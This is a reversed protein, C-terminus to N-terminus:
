CELNTLFPILFDALHTDDEERIYKGNLDLLKEM